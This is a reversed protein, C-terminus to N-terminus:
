IFLVHINTFYWWCLLLQLLFEAYLFLLLSKYLLISIAAHTIICPKISASLTYINTIWIICIQMKIVNWTTGNERRNKNANIQLRYVIYIWRDVWCRLTSLEIRQNGPHFVVVLSDLTLICHKYACLTYFNYKTSSLRNGPYYHPRM